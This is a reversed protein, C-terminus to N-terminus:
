KRFPFFPPMFSIALPTHSSVILASIALKKGSSSAHLSDLQQESNNGPLDNRTQMDDVIGYSDLAADWDFSDSQSGFM